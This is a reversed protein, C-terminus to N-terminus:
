RWSPSAATAYQSACHVRADALARAVHLGPQRPSTVATLPTRGVAVDSCETPSGPPSRRARRRDGADADHRRTAEKSNLAYHKVTSMVRPQVGDSLAAGMAGLLVSDEGYSEQSRGWGPAPALNICVGGFLNLGQARAEAGIADGVARELAPDWTAPRTIAVPFDTSHGV